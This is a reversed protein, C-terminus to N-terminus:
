EPATTSLRGEMRKYTTVKLEHVYLVYKRNVRPGEAPAKLDDVTICLHNARSIIDIM